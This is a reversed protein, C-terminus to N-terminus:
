SGVSVLASGDTITLAPTVAVQAPLPNNHFRVTVTHPYLNSGNYGVLSWANSDPYSDLAWSAHRNDWIIYEGTEFPIVQVGSMALYFAVLGNPGPPVEIDVSVVIEPPMQLPITTPQPADIENPLTCSFQHIIQAIDPEWAAPLPRSILTM